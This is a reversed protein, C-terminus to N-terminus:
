QEQIKSVVEIITNVLRELADMRGKRRERRVGLACWFSNWRLQGPEGHEKSNDATLM